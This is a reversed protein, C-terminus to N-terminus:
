GQEALHELHLQVSWCHVSFDTASKDYFLMGPYSDVHLAVASRFYREAEEETKARYLYTRLLPGEPEGKSVKRTFYPGSVPTYDISKSEFWKYDLHM